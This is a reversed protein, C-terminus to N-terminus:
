KRRNRWWSDIKLRIMDRFTKFILLVTFKSRGKDRKNLIIPHIVAEIGLRRMNVLIELEILWHPFRFELKELIDRKMLKLANADKLYIGFMLGVLANYSDSLFKRYFDYGKTGPEGVVLPLDSRRARMYMRFVDMPENQLDADFYTVYTGRAASLGTQVAGSYGMNRDHFLMRVHENGPNSLKEMVRKTGDTSGDDIIVLEFDLNTKGLSDTIERVTNELAEEENYAPIIITVEPTKDQM